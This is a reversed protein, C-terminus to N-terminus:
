FRKPVFYTTSYNRSGEYDIIEPLRRCVERTQTTLQAPALDEALKVTKVYRVIGRAVLEDGVEQAALKEIDSDGISVLSEWTTGAGHRELQEEVFLEMARRKLCAWSCGQAVNTNGNRDSGADLERAYRVDLQAVMDVAEPLNDQACEIVWPRDALTVVSVNGLSVAQSLLDRVAAAHEILAGATKGFAVGAGAPSKANSAAGVPESGGDRAAVAKQLRQRREFWSTPFLTDDWDLVILARLRQPKSNLQNPLMIDDALRTNDLRQLTARGGVSTKVWGSKPWDAKSGAPATFRLYDGRLERGEVVSNVPLRGAIRGPGSKGDCRVAVGDPGATSMVKWLPPADEKATPTEIIQLQCPSRTVVKSDMWTATLLDAAAQAAELLELQEYDSVAALVDIPEDICCPSASGLDHARSWALM